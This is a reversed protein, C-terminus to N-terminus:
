RTTSRSEPTASPADDPAAEGAQPALLTPMRIPVRPPSPAAQRPAAPAPLQATPAPNAPALASAVANGEPNSSADSPAGAAPSGESVQPVSHSRLWEGVEPAYRGSPELKAYALFHKRAAAENGFGEWETLGLMYQTKPDGPARAEITLLESRARSPQHLGLYVTAVLYRLWGADPHEKLYPEAYSLATGLRSDVLCVRMLLPLVQEAPHGRRMAAALYQEARLSDGRRALGAGEDFLERAAEAQAEESTRQQVPAPAPACAMAGLLLLVCHRSMRSWLGRAATANAAGSQGPRGHKRRVM